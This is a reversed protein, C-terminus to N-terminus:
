YNEHVEEVKGGKWEKPMQTQWEDKYAIRKGKNPPTMPQQAQGEGRGIELLSYTLTSEGSNDVVGEERDEEIVAMPHHDEMGVVRILVVTGNGGESTGRMGSKRRGLRMGVM